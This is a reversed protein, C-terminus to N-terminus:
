LWAGAFVAIRGCPLEAVTSLVRIWWARRRRALLVVSALTGLGTLVAPVVGYMLPWPARPVKVVAGLMIFLGAAAWLAGAAFGIVFGFQTRTM